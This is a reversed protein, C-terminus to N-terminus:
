LSQLDKDLADFETSTGEVDVSNLDSELDEKVVTQPTQYSSEPVAPKNQQMYLYLGGIVLIALVLVIILWLMLNGNQRNSEMKNQRESLM